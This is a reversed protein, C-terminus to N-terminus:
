RTKSCKSETQWLWSILKNEKVTIGSFVVASDKQIWYSTDSCVPIAIQTENCQKVVHSRQVSSRLVSQGVKTMGRVKIGVHHTRLFKHLIKALSPGKQRWSPKSSAVTNSSLTAHVFSRCRTWEHSLINRPINYYNVFSWFIIYIFNTAV